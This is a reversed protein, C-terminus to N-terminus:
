LKQPLPLFRRSASPSPRKATAMGWKYGVDPPWRRASMAIEDANKNRERGLHKKKGNM